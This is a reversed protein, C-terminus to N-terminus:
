AAFVCSGSTEGHAWGPLACVASPLTVNSSYCEFVISHGELHPLASFHAIGTMMRLSIIAKQRPESGDTTKRALVLRTM